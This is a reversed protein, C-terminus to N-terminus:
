FLTYGDTCRTILKGTYNLLISNGVLYPGIQASGVSIARGSNDM